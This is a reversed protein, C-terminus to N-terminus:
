VDPPLRPSRDSFAQKNTIPSPTIDKIEEEEEDSMIWAGAFDSPKNRHAHSLLDELVDDVSVHRKLRESLINTFANLEAYVKPSIKITKTEEM